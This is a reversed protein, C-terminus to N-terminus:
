GIVSLREREEGTLAAYWEVFRGVNRSSVERFFEVLYAQTEDDRQRNSMVSAAGTGTGMGSGGGGGNGFGMLQQKTMSGGLDLASGPVDEWDDDDANAGADSGNSGGEAAIEAALDAATLSDLM